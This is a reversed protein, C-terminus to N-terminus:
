SGTQALLSDLSLPLPKWGRYMFGPKSLDISVWKEQTEFKGFYKSVRREGHYQITLIGRDPNPGSPQYSIKEASASYCSEDFPLSRLVEVGNITLTVFGRTGGGCEGRAQPESYRVTVIILQDKLQCSQSIDGARYLGQTRQLEELKASDLKELNWAGIPSLDLINIEPACTIHLFKFYEGAVVVQPLLVVALFAIIVIPRNV